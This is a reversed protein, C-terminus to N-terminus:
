NPPRPVSDMWLPLVFQSLMLVSTEDSYYEMYEESDATNINFSSESSSWDESELHLFFEETQLNGSVLCGYHQSWLYVIDTDFPNMALPFCNDVCGFSWINFKRSLQWPESDSNNLRWVKLKRNLLEIYIVDGGSTTLCRKVLSNDSGPLPIVRCQDDSEPGYFDHALLVGHQDTSVRIVRLYLMGNLNVPSYPGLFDVPHSSLLRKYTWLGTESSYVYVRWIFMGRDRHEVDSHCTWVVKFSSVIGEEDLRTVM